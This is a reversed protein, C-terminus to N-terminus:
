RPFDYIYVCVVPRRRPGPGGCSGPLTAPVLLAPDAAISYTLATGHTVKRRKKPGQKNADDPAHTTKSPTNGKEKDSSPTASARSKDGNHESAAAAIHAPKAKAPTDAGPMRDKAEATAALGNKKKKDM